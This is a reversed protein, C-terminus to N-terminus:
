STEQDDTRYDVIRTRAQEQTPRPIATVPRGDHGAGRPEDLTGDWGVGTWDIGESQMYAETTTYPYPLNGGTLSSIGSTGRTM